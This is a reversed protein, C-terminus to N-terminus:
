RPRYTKLPMGDAIVYAMNGIRYVSFKTEGVMTVYFCFPIM